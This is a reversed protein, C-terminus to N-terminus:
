ESDEEFYEGNVLVIYSPGADMHERVMELTQTDIARAAQKTIQEMHSLSALEVYFILDKM